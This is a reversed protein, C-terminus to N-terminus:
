SQTARPCRELGAADPSHCPPPAHRGLPLGGWDLPGAAKQSPPASQWASPPASPLWGAAGAGGHVGSDQAAASADDASCICAHSSIHGTRTAFAQGANFNAWLFVLIDKCTTVTLPPTVNLKHGTLAPQKTIQICPVSLVSLCYCNLAGAVHVLFAWATLHMCQPANLVAIHMSMHASM